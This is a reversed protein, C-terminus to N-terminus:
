HPKKFIYDRGHVLESGRHEGYELLCKEFVSALRHCHIDFRCGPEAYADEKELYRDFEHLLRPFISFFPVGTQRPVRAILTKKLALKRIPM